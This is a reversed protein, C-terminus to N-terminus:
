ALPYFFLHLDTYSGDPLRYGGEVTGIRQFGISEYLHIAALNAAVVANFQLGCFGYERATKLSHEVLRRGLGRGRADKSVGYSANAIHSCRGVNNPHLISVGLLTEGEFACVTATQSAFYAEAEAPSLPKEAPFSVGEEIIDNWIELMAPLDHSRYKRFTFPM